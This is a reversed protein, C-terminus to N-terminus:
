DFRGEVFEIYGEDYLDKYFQTHVEMFPSEGMPTILHLERTKKQVLLVMDTDITKVLYKKPKKTDIYFGYKNSLEKFKDWKDEKIYARM